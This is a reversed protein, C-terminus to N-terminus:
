AQLMFRPSAKVNRVAVADVAAPKITGEKCARGDHVQEVCATRMAAAVVAEASNGLWTCSLHPMLFTTRKTSVIQVGSALTHHVARPM